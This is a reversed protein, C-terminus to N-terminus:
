TAESVRASKGAGSVFDSDSGRSVHFGAMLVAEYAGWFGM